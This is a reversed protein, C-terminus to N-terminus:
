VMRGTIAQVKRRAEPLSLRRWHSARTAFTRQFTRCFHSLNDFGSRYCSESVSLGASLMDAAAALRWRLVYQHPAVGVYRRFAHTLQPGSMNVERARAAITRRSVSDKEIARSCEIIADIDNPRARYQGRVDEQPTDADLAILTALSWREIEFTDSTETADTLRRYTYALRPTPNERALWRSRELIPESGVMAHATFAVSVCVDTPCQEGHRCQFEAGPRSLFVSGERLRRHKGDAIVDFSGATVFAIAWHNAVEDDPDEHAEHPPHDFRSLTFDLSEHLLHYRNM